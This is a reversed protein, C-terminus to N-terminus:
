ESRAYFLRMKLFAEQVDVANFPPRFTAYLRGRPDIVFIHHEQEIVYSGDSFLTKLYLAVFERAIAELQEESEARAATMSLRKSKLFAALQTPSENEGDLEFALFQFDNNSFATQMIRLIDFSSSCGPLCNSHTFYAFSWKGILNDNTLAQEVNTEFTFNSLPRAPSELYQKLDIPIERTDKQTFPLRNVWLVLLFGIIVLYTVLFRKSNLNKSIDVM